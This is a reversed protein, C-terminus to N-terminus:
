KIKDQGTVPLILNQILQTEYILLELSVSLFINDRRSELRTNVKEKKKERERVREGTTDQCVSAAM